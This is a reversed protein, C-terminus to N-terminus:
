CNEEHEQSMMRHNPMLVNSTYTSMWNRWSPKSYGVLSHQTPTLLSTVWQQISVSACVGTVSTVILSFITPDCDILTMHCNSYNTIDVGLWYWKNCVKLKVEHWLVLTSDILQSEKCKKVVVIVSNIRSVFYITQKVWLFGSHQHIIKIESPDLKDM